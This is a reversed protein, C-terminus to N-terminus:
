IFLLFLNENMCIDISIGSLDASIDLLINVKM